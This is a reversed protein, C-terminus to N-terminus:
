RKDGVRVVGQGGGGEVRGKGGRQGARTVSRPRDRKDCNWGKVEWGFGWCSMECKPLLGKLLTEDGMGM